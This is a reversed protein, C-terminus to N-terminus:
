WNWVFNVLPIPFSGGGSSVLAVFGLDATLNAGIFRPGVSFLLGGDPLVYNESIFKISKAVRAEGGIMAVPGIGDNGYGAGLTVAADPHGHTVVGFFISSFGSDIGGLALLGVAVDTREGGGIRVKPAFWFPRNAMGGAFLLPTGGSLVVNDWPAVALFPVILEYVAFYGEGKSLGRGTPGFFLRTRNPDAPRFVGDVLRGAARDMRVISRRQLEVVDGSTLSFRVPDGAELTWGVLVTGGVLEIEQLENAGPVWIDVPAQATAGNPALIALVTM